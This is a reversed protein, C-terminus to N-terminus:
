QLLLKPIHERVLEPYDYEKLCTEFSELLYYKTLLHSVQYEPVISLELCLCYCLYTVAFNDFYTEMTHAFVPVACM